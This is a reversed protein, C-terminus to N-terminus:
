SNVEKAVHAANAQQVEMIHLTIAVANAALLVVTVSWARWLKRDLLTYFFLAAWIAPFLVIPFVINDIQAAGKPLWLTGGSMTAIATLFVLPGALIGRSWARRRSPAAHSSPLIEASM